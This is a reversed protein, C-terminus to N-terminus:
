FKSFYDICDLVWTFNTKIKLYEPLEWTDAVVRDLPGGPLIQKSVPIIKTGDRKNLCIPCNEIYLKCDKYINKWYFKKYNKIGNALTIYGTHGTNEHTERIIKIKELEKPIIYEIINKDKKEIFILNDNNDLRYIKCKILFNETKKNREKKADNINYINSPYILKSWEIKNDKNTANKLSTLYIKIDDYYTPEKDLIILKNFKAIVKDLKHSLKSKDIKNNNLKKTINLEKIKDHNLNVKPVLLSYHINNTFLVNMDNSSYEEGIEM